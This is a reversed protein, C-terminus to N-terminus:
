AERVIVVELLYRVPNMMPSSAQKEHSVPNMATKAALASTRSVSERAGVMSMKLMTLRSKCYMAAPPIM